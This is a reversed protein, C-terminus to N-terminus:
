ATPIATVGLKLTGLALLLRAKVTVTVQTLTQNTVVADVAGVASGSMSFHVNYSLSPMTKDLTFVISATAGLVLAPVDKMPATAVNAQGAPGALGQIGPDGKVSVGPDGKDGKVSPGPDGKDGKDGKISLGDKGPDGKDGKDGKISTGSDGKDGKDGKVSQGPDGKDGKDGKVSLGDQGPDGKEGKDGKLGPTPAAPAAPTPLTFDFVAATPTGSNSVEPATDPQGPKVAGVAITPTSGAMTRLSVATSISPWAGNRKPGLLMGNPVNLYYAGDFGEASAPPWAVGMLWGTGEGVMGLDDIVTGFSAPNIRRYQEETLVAVSDTSAYTVNNPLTVNTRLTRVRYMPM